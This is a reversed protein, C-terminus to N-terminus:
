VGITTLVPEIRMTAAFNPAADLVVTKMLEIPGIQFVLRPGTDGLGTQSRGVLGLGVEELDDLFAIDENLM